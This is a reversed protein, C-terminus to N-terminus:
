RVAGDRVFTEASFPRIFEVDSDAVLVADENSAAVGALKLVQQQIWGRVPPWPSKLNVMINCFPVRVFTSPLFATDDRVSTRPGALRGFLELDSRPVIINHHVTEPSNELISRNLAACLEFDPAYSKTLVAMRTM